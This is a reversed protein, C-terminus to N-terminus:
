QSRSDNSSKYVFVQVCRATLLLVLTTLSFSVWQKSIMSIILYRASDASSWYHNIVTENSINHVPTMYISSMAMLQLSDDDVEDHYFDEKFAEVEIFPIEINQKWAVVWGVYRRWFIRLVTLEPVWLGLDCELLPQVGPRLLAEEKRTFSSFLLAEENRTTKCKDDVSPWSRYQETKCDYDSICKWKLKRAMM